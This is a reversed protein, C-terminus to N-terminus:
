QVIFVSVTDRLVRNDSTRWEFYFDYDGTEFRMDGDLPLTTTADKEITLSRPFDILAKCRPDSLLNTYAPISDYLGLSSDGYTISHNTSLSVESSSIPNLLLHDYCGYAVNMTSLSPILPTAQAFEIHVITKFMLTNWATDARHYIMNGNFSDQHVAQTEVESLYYATPDPCDVMELCATAFSLIFLTFILYFGKRIMISDLFNQLTNQPSAGTNPSKHECFARWGSFSTRVGIVFIALGKIQACRTPM